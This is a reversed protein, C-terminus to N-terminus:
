TKAERSVRRKKRKPNHPNWAWCKDCCYVRYGEPDGHWYAERSGCPCPVILLARYYGLGM